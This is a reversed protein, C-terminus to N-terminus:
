FHFRLGVQALRQEGQLPNGAFTSPQGFTTSSRNGNYGAPNTANFLNFVEILAEISTADSFRFLKAARLDLQSFASGRGSNVNAVGPPLDIRFGDGNLDVGAHINYPTASRARLTGALVVDHAFTYTGAVTARHRADTNLPGICADCLPNLPNVSVDRGIALDPQYDLNSLRFEDAGALVNGTIKSLTYFGQLTLRTTLKARINFNAGKYDAFGKGYWLRFNGFDPFRRPQGVGTLPNARFRFPIDRYAVTSVDVGVALWPTLEHAVGASAQRGYPARITPSAVENPPNVAVGSLQNRPLPQGIQFFTGDANRIGNPNNVNYAVGYDSQVAATPFLLTANTYPFDYFIGWGGRLITRSNGAVDWTVGLRPGLNNKDNELVGGKGGQFDQLYSEAYKTQASLVKWIPNSRQDLDFGSWYDYRLGLNLTVREHPLWDDQFYVSSQNVPTSFIFNGGYQTIDTVPSGVRDQLLSFQPADVGTTFTGGLTPEHVFLVGAKFNHTSGALASLFSVDDKFQYKVQNTSQPTNINQGRTAGSPFALYPNKSDATIANDFKTYQFVFENLAGGSLQASHGVLGSYYKNSITGLSDPATLPGAGYKQTNKQYGFRAQMFQSRSLNATM